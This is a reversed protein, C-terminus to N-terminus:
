WVLGPWAALEPSLAGVQTNRMSHMIRASTRQHAHVADAFLLSHGVALRALSTAVEARCLVAEM